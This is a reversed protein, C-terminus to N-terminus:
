NTGYSAYGCNELGLSSQYVLYGHLKASFQGHEKASQHQEPFQRLVASPTFSSGWLSSHRRQLCGQPHDLQDISGMSLCQLEQYSQDQNVAGVLVGDIQPELMTTTIGLIIM